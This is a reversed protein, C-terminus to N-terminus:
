LVIMGDEEFDQKATQGLVQYWEMPSIGTGPRKTTINEETFKEGTQIKQKAVISKRAAQINKQESPAPEKVGDGMAKEINRIAKIMGSLEDPTLSAKHDPGDMNRDLTFHKEIMCAGMAAAAIAAETGMTHDSYGVPLGLEEKMMVMAKLNVDEYPAPYETTCHLLTIKGAHHRKLVQVAQCVEKLDCMGTSLIVPKATKAIKLLYPLDTIEGSPIKWMECPINDLLDISELDFPASLFDIEQSSCLEKLEYYGERSLELRKLMQYQTETSDTNEKQYAAKSAYKTVLDEATFTQFKVADAGAKKAELVMQKATELDGNHNVGAEAIIYVKGM